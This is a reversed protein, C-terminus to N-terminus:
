YIYDILVKARRHAQHIKIFLSIPYKKSTEEESIVLKSKMLMGEVPSFLETPLKFEVALNSENEIYYDTIQKKDILTDIVEEVSSGYQRIVNLVDDGTTKKKGFKMVPRSLEKDMRAKRLLTGSKNSIDVVQVSGGFDRTLM